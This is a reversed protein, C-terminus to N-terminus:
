PGENGCSDAARVSYYFSASNSLAGADDFTTGTVEAIKTFPGQPLQARYVRYVAATPISAWTLRAHAANVTSVSLSSGVSGPAPQSTQDRASLRILNSDTVGGNRPGTSCAEDNEARVIYYLDVDNPASADTYATGALGLALRNQAQPTFSPSTDRYVSYTGTHGTGWAPAINWSVLIGGDACGSLDQVSAVGAFTPAGGCGGCTAFDPTAGSHILFRDVNWGSRHASQSFGGNQRFRIQLSPNGDAFADIDITQLSWASESNGAVSNSAWVNTWTSGQKVDVFSIGGGGVNLWRRFKLQGQALSSADIVPSTASQTANPEYDGPNAGLGTLDHGLIKTGQFATAPDPQASGKGQPAGIQWEGELTWATSTEFEDRYVSPIIDVTAEFPAGAVDAVRANGCADTTTVRFYVRGCELIPKLTLAHATSLTGDSVTSGLAPTTGWDVRGSAPESTNWRVIVSEDTIDTVSVATVGPAACDATASQFSVASLGTGDDADHYTATLPEGNRAELIGNGPVPAGPSTPISGTFQATNPGTETLVVAEGYPEAGSSVNVTVTEAVTPNSNLDIDVVKVPLSQSCGLFTAGVTLKGAHCPQLGNGFDGLTEFFYYSGGRDDLALNGSSEQSEVSYYYVTCQQLGSLGIGHQTVLASNTTTAAPPKLEGWHLRSDSPVDTSWTVTATANSVGSTAVASIAPITCDSIATATRTLDHGGAGDDADLYQATITNLTQVSLAGDGPVAPSLTTTISGVFKASGPSTETLVVTEPTPEADSSVHAITTGAGVNVDRVTINVVGGGCAYSARDLQIAGAFPSPITTECDSVPSNCAQNTGRAQVRYNMPFDNPLDTDVYTTTGGPVTAVVNSSFDCDIENRLILYNAASPVATWSLSASNSGATAGLVPKALAPCGASSQNSADSAAGCAIAHRAFAAYIAAAHPTGNALNGDDDDATRLENFWGNANCGDSNPLACNFINGSSGQRSKYWIRELIQWSTAADFGAAPLDRAALDYIAEAPPYAECHVEKGCPGSGGGCRSQTFNAPTAPTHSNHQDFDMDRIGTCSLCADGYGSCVGSEYFGRGVCSRHAQIIATVDAYAESTNDFGGGDNEDVGHGLEHNVVGAIEGTNRCGGGERYMNLTNGGWGANCTANVNTNITTQQTAWTNAPLWYRLKEKIRNTQYFCTRAPGTNGASDGPQVACNNRNPTLLMDIDDDCVASESVAGCADSIRFYPGNLTTVATGGVPSCTFQAMDGATQPSGNITINAYPMPFGPQECGDPCIGDNSRPFVGGKVQAYKDDDYLAVAEGAIADVKGVWTGKTGAVTLEFEWMPRYASGRGAAGRYVNGTGEPVVPSLALREPAADSVRDAGTLGMYAYLVQRATAADYRAAPAHDLTGWRDAGFSVLNGHVVFLVVRNGDVPLGDVVRDFAIVWHDEDVPASADRDLVLQSGAVKFLAEHSSLFGRARSELDALTPAPGAPDYWRVGQGQVLLPAGSRRDISVKWSGYASKFAAWGQREQDFGPLADPSEALVGVQASPDPLLVRDFRTPETDVVAAFSAATAALAFAASLVSLVSSRRARLSDVFM